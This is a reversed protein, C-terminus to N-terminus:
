RVQFVVDMDLVICPGIEQLPADHKKGGTLIWINGNIKRVDSNGIIFQGADLVADKDAATILDLDGAVLDAVRIFDADGRQGREVIQAVHFDATVIHIVTDRAADLDIRGGAVLQGM